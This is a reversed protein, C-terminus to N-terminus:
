NGKENEFFYEFTEEVVLVEVGESSIVVPLGYKSVGSVYHEGEIFPARTRSFHWTEKCVVEKTESKEKM